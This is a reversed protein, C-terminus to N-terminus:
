YHLEYLRLKFKRRSSNPLKWSQKSVAVPTKAFGLGGPGAVRELYGNLAEATLNDWVLVFTPRTQSIAVGRTDLYHRLTGLDARQILIQLPRLVTLDHGSRSSMSRVQHSLGYDWPILVGGAPIMAEIQLIMPRWVPEKILTGWRLVTKPDELRRYESVCHGALAAMVATALALSALARSERRRYREIATRVTVIVVWAVGLILFPLVYAATRDYQVFPPLFTGFLFHIVVISAPLALRDRWACGMVGIIGLILGPISFIRGLSQFWYVAQDRIKEAYSQDTALVFIEAISSFTQDNMAGGLTDSYIAMLALAPVFAWLIVGSYKASLRVRTSIPHSPDLLIAVVTAPAVIFVNTYHAYIALLQVGFMLVAAWRDAFVAQTVTVKNLWNQTALVAIMLFMVGTNHVGQVSFVNFFSNGCGLALTLGGIAYVDIQLTKKSSGHRCLVPFLALLWIAIVSSWISIAVMGSMSAGIALSGLAFFATSVAIFILTQAQYIQRLFINLFSDEDRTLANLWGMEGTREPIFHDAEVLRLIWQTFFAEDGLLEINGFQQIRWLGCLCSVIAAAIIFRAIM